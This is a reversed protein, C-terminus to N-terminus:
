DDWGSDWGPEVKCIEGLANEWFDNLEIRATETELLEHIWLWAEQHDYRPNITYMVRMQPLRNLASPNFGAYLICNLRAVFELVPMDATLWFCWVGHNEFPETIHFPKPIPPLGTPRQQPLMAIEEM